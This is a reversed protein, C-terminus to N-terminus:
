HIEVNDIVCASDYLDDGVDYVIFQLNIIKGRYESVDIEGTKWGTHYTTYDGGVFDVDNLSTWSSSNISEYTQAFLDDASHIVKVAFCDNYSSYVYEMPEESIFDYDFTIKEADNPVVFSQSCSSGETGDDLNVIQKSGIGTTVVMMKKSSSGVPKVSGLKSVTRVDGLCEWNKPKSSIFNTQEFDGNLIGISVLVAQEDGNHVPYAVDLLPNMDRDEDMRIHQALTETHTSEYWVQHNNGLSQRAENFADISTNGSLLSDVYREMFRRSYEAFVTNHFGVYAKAGRQIFANAMDYSYQESASGHGRGLSECCESFVFTNSFDSGDYQNTFFRPTIAYQGNFKLIQHDKLEQEYQKEKEQSSVEALCIVPMEYSKTWWLMGERWRGISGHTSICVINYEDLGRYNDVTPNVILTTDLGNGDWKEELNEYFTTRCAILEEKTEFAPFSNLIIGKFTPNTEGVLSSTDNTFTVWPMADTNQAAERREPDTDNPGVPEEERSISDFGLTNMEASPEEYSVMGLIGEKYAFTIANAEPNELISDEEIMGNTECERLTDLAAEQREENTMQSFAENGLMEIIKQDVEAIATFAEDSIPLYSKVLIENSSQGDYKAQFAIVNEEEETLAIEASYIGDGAIDDGGEGNDMMPVTLPEFDGQYGYSLTIEEAIIDTELYFHFIGSDEGIFYSDSDSRLIMNHKEGNGLVGNEEDFHYLVGDIEIDGKAMLGTKHDYYYTNGAQEPYLEALKGEITVWGKLMAGNEDYRIWKGMKNKICEYTYDEMGHDAENANVRITEDDWQEEEQYIYPMFVEKGLAAAGEFGADLWYWADSVPDYIERGREFGGFETDWINKPDGFVGQRKGEEYWYKKGDLEMFGFEPVEYAGDALAEIPKLLTLAITAVILYVMRRQFM